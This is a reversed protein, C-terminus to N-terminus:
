GNLVNECFRWLITAVQARKASGCPDLKMDDGDAIGSIVGSGCAWQMAPIAYERIDFADTYSLINTDEGVSVDIGKYRCYRYLIAAMQERTIADGPGFKGDGYGGVINGAAAWRVAETYWKDAAVDDFQMLYDVAPEGELRWLITVIQARTTTGDPSFLTDTIGNMLDNEICFHVGDHYWATSNLDAFVSLPCDKGGDCTEALTEDYDIMYVSLHDTQWSLRKNKADYRTDCRERGGNEDVYCAVLGAAKEGNRLEYPVTVTIRDGMSSIIRGGSTLSIDYAPRNGVAAQQAPTLRAGNRSLISITITTGRIHQVQKHLASANFAISVNDSFVIELMQKAAAAEAITEVVSVPLEVATIEQTLASFDITVTEGRGDVVTELAELKVNGVTAKEGTVTVEVQVRTNDGSVPVTVTPAPVPVVPPTYPTSVTLTGNETTVAYNATVDTVGDTIVLGAASVTIDYTGATTMDAGACDASAGSVSHGSVLGAATVTYEPESGNVLATKNDAKLTLPRQAITFPITVSGAYQADSGAVSVTLTYSGANIPSASFAYDYASIAAADGTDTVVATINATISSTLDAANYVLNAPLNVTITVPTKESVTLTGDVHTIDYNDATAGSIAITYSGAQTTDPTASYRLVPKVSLASEATDGGVLGTVTYTLAAEAPADRGVLVTVNDATITMPAKAISWDKTVSGTFNGKGTVTLTYDGAGTQQNGTVTYDDATLTLGNLTVSAISQTQATGTYTLATGLTVTAGSLDM